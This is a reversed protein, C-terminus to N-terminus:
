NRRTCPTTHRVVDSDSMSFKFQMCIPQLNVSLYLYLRLTTYLKM